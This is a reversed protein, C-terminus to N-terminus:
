YLGKLLRPPISGMAAKVGELFNELGNKELVVALQLCLTSISDIDEENFYQVEATYMRLLGLVNDGYMIPVSLMSKVGEKVAEDPYSILLSNQMDEIFVPTKKFFATDRADIFIPGKNIYHDSLGCSRVSFLQKEREDFLLICCGKISFTRHLGEVIHNFLINLDGYNSIARSIAKFEKLHFKRAVTKSMM